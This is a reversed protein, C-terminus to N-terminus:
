RVRVKWTVIILCVLASIGAIIFAAQYSFHDIIYGGFIPSLAFFPARITNALGIYVGRKEEHSLELILNHYSVNAGGM